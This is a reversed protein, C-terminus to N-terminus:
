KPIATSTESSYMNPNILTHLIASTDANIVYARGSNTQDLSNDSAGVVATDGHIAVSIGFRDSEPSIVEPNHVTILSPAATNWDPTLALTVSGSGATVPVGVNGFSDVFAISYSIDGTTDLSSVTYKATWTNNYISTNEYTVSGALAVGDSYFTVVPTDIIKDAEFAITIVNNEVARTTDENNSFISVNSLVPTSTANDAFSDFIYAKGSSLADTDDEYSAGVIVRNEYMAVTTGFNDGVSTGYANPNNLTQVLPFTVNGAYENISFIYAAGSNSGSTQMWPGTVTDESGTSVTIKNDSIAVAM